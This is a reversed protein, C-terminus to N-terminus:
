PRLSRLRAEILAERQVRVDAAGSGNRRLRGALALQVFGHAWSWGLSAEIEPDGARFRGRAMGREYRERVLAQVRRARLEEEPELDRPPDLDQFMLRYLEPHSLGFDVYRRLLEALAEADDEIAETPALARGLADFGHLAIERLLAQKSRFHLYITAPSHGLKEALSRMTIRHPGERFVIGIAESLIKDRLHSSAVRQM